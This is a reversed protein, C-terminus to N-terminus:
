ITGSKTLAARVEGLEEVRSVREVHSPLPPVRARDPLCVRFRARPDRDLVRHVVELFVPLHRVWEQERSGPLLAYLHEDVGQRPHVRDLVPHGVWHADLDPFLAPEFSLLCLLRNLSATIAGVRSPRWAWVQPCVYGIAPVGLARARRAVPLHLDPADVVILAAPGQELAECLRRRVRRAASLSGLVEVAGMASLDEIRALPEVGSARMHPGAVGVFRFDGRSSLARVLEAGLLDGSPEAASVVITSM